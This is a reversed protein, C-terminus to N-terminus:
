SLYEMYNNVFEYPDTDENFVPRVPEAAYIRDLRQAFCLMADDSLLEGLAIPADAEIHLHVKAWGSQPLAMLYRDVEGFMERIAEIAPVKWTWKFIPDHHWHAISGDEIADHAERYLQLVAWQTDTLTTARTPATSM